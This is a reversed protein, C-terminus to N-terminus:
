YCNEVRFVITNFLESNHLADFDYESREEYSKLGFLLHLAEHLVAQCRTIEDETDYVAIALYSPLCGYVNTESRCEKRMEDLNSYFFIDVVEKLDRSPRFGTSDFFEKQANDLWLDTPNYAYQSARRVGADYPSM